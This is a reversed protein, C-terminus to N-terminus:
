NLFDFTVYYDPEGPTLSDIPPSGHGIFTDGCWLEVHHPRDRSGYMGLDGPRRQAKTIVRMHPSKVISFTSAWLHDLPAAPSEVGAGKYVSAVFQSCDSRWDRPTPKLYVTNAKGGALYHYAGPNKRYNAAAKRAEAVIRARKGRVAQAHAKQKARVRKHAAVRRRARDLHVQDRKGPNLIFDQEEPTLPGVRMHKLSDLDIGLLYAVYCADERTEPGFVGDVKPVHNPADRARARKGIARQLQEVAKGKSGNQLPRM